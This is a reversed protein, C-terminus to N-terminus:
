SGSHLSIRYPPVLTQIHTTCHIFRSLVNINHNTYKQLDQNKQNSLFPVSKLSALLLLNARLFEHLIDQHLLVAAVIDKGTTWNVQFELISKM